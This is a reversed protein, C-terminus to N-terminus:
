RFTNKKCNIVFKTTLDPRVTTDDNTQWVFTRPLKPSINDILSSWKQADVQKLIDIAGDYSNPAVLPYGLLIGRLKAEEQYNEALMGVLNAGASFGVAYIRNEDIFWEDTHNHIIDFAKKADELSKDLTYGENSVPEPQDENEPM